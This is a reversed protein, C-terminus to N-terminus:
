SEEGVYANYEEMDIVGSALMKESWLQLAEVTVSIKELEKQIKVFDRLEDKEIKGDATIEILRNKEKDMSNLSALMQLVIGPLNDMQIEPVYQKGIPCEHSCYYNCLDPRKYKKSMMLVEEPHAPSKGSEIKELREPTIFELLESAKERSLDLDDRTQRFINKEVKESEAM